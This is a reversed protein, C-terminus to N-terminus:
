AVNSYFLKGPFIKLFIMRCHENLTIASKKWDVNSYFLKGSLAQSVFIEDPM